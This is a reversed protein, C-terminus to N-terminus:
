LDLRLERVIRHSVNSRGTFLLLAWFTCLKVHLNLFKLNFNLHHKHYDLQCSQTM